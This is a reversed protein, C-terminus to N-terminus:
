SMRHYVIEAEMATELMPRVAAWSVSRPAPEIIHRLHRHISTPPPLDKAFGRFIFTWQGNVVSGADASNLTIHQWSNAAMSLSGRSICVIIKDFRTLHPVLVKVWCASGQIFLLVNGVDNSMADLLFRDMSLLTVHPYQSAFCHVWYANIQQIYITSCSFMLPALVFFWSPWVECCIIAKRYFGTSPVLTGSCQVLPPKNDCSNLDQDNVYALQEKLDVRPSELAPAM